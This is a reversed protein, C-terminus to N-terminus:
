LPRNRGSWKRFFTLFELWASREEETWDTPVRQVGGVLSDRLLVEPSVDLANCLAILTDMSATRTGREIHGMFSASIGIREALAEQTLKKRRRELRVRYGFSRDDM